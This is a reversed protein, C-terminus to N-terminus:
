FFRNYLNRMDFVLEKITQELEPNRYKIYNSIRIFYGNYETLLKFYQQEHETLKKRALVQGCLAQTRCYDSVSLGTLEAMKKITDKETDSCRFKIITTKM